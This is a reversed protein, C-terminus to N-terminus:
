LLVILLRRIKQRCRQPASKWTSSIISVAATFFAFSNGIDDSGAIRQRTVIYRL